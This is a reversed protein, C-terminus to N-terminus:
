LTIESHTQHCSKTCWRANIIRSSALTLFIKLVVTMIDVDHKVIYDKFGILLDRESEFSVVNIGSTKKYCLCVKEYIDKEGMRKLTVAIQFCADGLIDADPFKGTSSNTEIDFSAV